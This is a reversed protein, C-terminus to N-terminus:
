AARGLTVSGIGDLSATATSGRPLASVQTATGTTIVAGAPLGIGRRSLHEVLWVLADVPDGLVDAGSGQGTVQGDVTMTAEVSTLATLDADAVGPGVVLLSNAGADAILCTLPTGLFQAYRGGVVEIAPHVTAVVGIVADRSRREASPRLDDGLTFAFEGELNPESVLEDDVVVGSRHIQHVRGAFPGSAGLLQQAHESTCGIKWGAAPRDLHAAVLDDVANAAAETPPILEAPIADIARRQRRADVLLRALADIEATASAPANGSTM